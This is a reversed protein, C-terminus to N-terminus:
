GAVTQGRYVVCNHGRGKAQYLARDAEELVTMESEGPEPLRVAVGVSISLLESVQRNGSVIGLALVSAHLKQAMTVADEERNVSFCAVFEEGGTRCIIDTSRGFCIQMCRAVEKLAIDGQYHGFTDNYHKFFDIDVALVACHRRLRNCMEWLTRIREFGAKRNSLQTLYDTNAEDQLQYIVQAYGMHVTNSMVFGALNILLTYVILTSGAGAWLAAALSAVLQMACLTLLDKASFLPAIALLAYFLLLNLQKGTQLDLKYFPVMCVSMLLWFSMCVYRVKRPAWQKKFAAATVIMTAACLVAMVIGEPRVRGNQYYRPDVLNISQLVVAATAVLFVWRLCVKSM